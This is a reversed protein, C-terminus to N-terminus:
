SERMGAPIFISSVVALTHETLSSIFRQFIAGATERCRIYDISLNPPRDKFTPALNDRECLSEAYYLHFHM